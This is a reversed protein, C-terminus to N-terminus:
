FDCIYRLQRALRYLTTNRAGEPVHGDKFGFASLMANVIVAYPIGNYDSPFSGAGELDGRPSVQPAMEGGRPLRLPATAAETKSLITRKKM